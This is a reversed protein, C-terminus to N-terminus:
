NKLFKDLFEKVRIQADQTAAPNYQLTHGYALVTMRVADFAHTAGPYIVLQIKGAPTTATKVLRRCPSAPTWDDATGMLMLVPTSFGQQAYGCGPYFVSTARFRGCAYPQHLPGWHEDVAWLASSGGHSWGMLGIRDPDIGRQGQLFKLAGYADGTRQPASLRSPDSCVQPIGRPGFSDLVLAAFGWENLQAAWRHSPAKPGGCGHMLVIAPIRGRGQPIQPQSYWGRLVIQKEGPGPVSPFRVLQGQGPQAIGSGAAAGLAIALAIAKLPFGFGHHRRLVSSLFTM